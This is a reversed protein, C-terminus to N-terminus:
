HLVSLLVVAARHRCVRVLSLSCALLGTVLHDVFANRCGIGANGSLWVIFGHIQQSNEASSERRLGLWVQREAM